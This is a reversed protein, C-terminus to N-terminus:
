MYSLLPSSGFFRTFTRCVELIMIWSDYDCIDAVLQLYVLAFRPEACSRGRKLARSRIVLANNMYKVRVSRCMSRVCVFAV